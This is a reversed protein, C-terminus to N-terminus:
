NAMKVAFDLAVECITSLTEFHIGDATDSSTHYVASDSAYFFTVDIGAEEFALHDSEEGSDYSTDLYLDPYNGSLESLATSARTSASAGQALLYGNGRGVMDFNAMFITNDLSYIPDSVYHSSGLYGVEEGTFILFVVTRKVMHKLVTLAAAVHMAVITGSANDDAGPGYREMHDSHAGIILYENKLEPDTGEVVAVLNSTNCGYGNFTQRFEGNNGPQVNHKKWYDIIYQDSARKEDTCTERGYWKNSALEYMTEEVKDVDLLALAQDRTGPTTDTGNAAGDTDDTQGENDTDTDTDADGDSDADTDTDAATGSTDGDSDIDTDANAAAGSTGGGDSGTDSPSTDEEFDNLGSIDPGSDDQRFAYRRENSDGCSIVLPALYLVLVFILLRHKSTSLKITAGRQPVNMRPKRNTENRSSM